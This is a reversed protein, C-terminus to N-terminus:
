ELTDPEREEPEHREPEHTELEELNALQAQAEKAIAKLVASLHSKSTSWKSSASRPTPRGHDREDHAEASKVEELQRLLQKAAAILTDISEYDSPRRAVKTFADNACLGYSSVTGKHDTRLKPV